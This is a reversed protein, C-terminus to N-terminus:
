ALLVTQDPNMANAEMILDLRFYVHICSYVASTFLLRCIKALYLTLENLPATQDPNM